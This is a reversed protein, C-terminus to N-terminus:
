SDDAPSSEQPLIAPLQPLAAANFPLKGLAPLISNRLRNRVHYPADM